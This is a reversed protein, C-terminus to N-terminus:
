AFAEKQKRQFVHRNIVHTFVLLLISNMKKKRKPHTQFEIGTRPVTLEHGRTCWSLQAIDAKPLCLSLILFHSEVWLTITTIATNEARIIYPGKSELVLVLILILKSQGNKAFIRVPFKYGTRNIRRKTLWIPQEIVIRTAPLKTKKSIFFIGFSSGHQQSTKVCRCKFKKAFGRVLIIVTDRKERWFSASKRVRVTTRHTM